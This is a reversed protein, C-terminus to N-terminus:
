SFLAHINHKPSSNLLNFQNKIHSNILKTLLNHKLKLEYKNRQHIYNYM